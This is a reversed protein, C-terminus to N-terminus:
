RRSSSLWGLSCARLEGINTDSTIDEVLMKLTVGSGGDGNDKSSKKSDKAPKTNM